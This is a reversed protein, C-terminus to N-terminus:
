KRKLQRATPVKLKKDFPNKKDIDYRTCNLQQMHLPPLDDKSSLKGKKIKNLDKKGLQNGNRGLQHASQMRKKKGHPCKPPKKSNGFQILSEENKVTPACAFGGM